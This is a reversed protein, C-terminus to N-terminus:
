IASSGPKCHIAPFSTRIEPLIFAACFPETGLKRPEQEDCSLATIVGGPGRFKARASPTLAERARRVTSVTLRIALPSHNAWCSVQGSQAERPAQDRMDQHGVNRGGGGRSLSVRSGPPEGDLGLVAHPAGSRQEGSRALRSTAGRRPLSPIRSGLRPQGCRDPPRSEACRSPNVRDQEVAVTRVSSSTKCRREQQISEGRAGTCSCHFASATTDSADGGEEDEEPCGDGKGRRETRDMHIQPLANPATKPASAVTILATSVCATIRCATSWPGGTLTSAVMCSTPISSSVINRSQM